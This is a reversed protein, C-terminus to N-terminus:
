AGEGLIRRAEDLHAAYHRWREVSSAYLPKRVQWLSATKVVSDNAHFSLCGEEWPLDCFALLSAITSRPERVLDEYGFDHISDPYLAKWHAMLRRYQVYWHAAHALSLGYSVTLQFHLFYISLINDLSNRLTHVIRADPFLRKILGIHLFNDPRKDTVVDGGPFQKRLADRYATRARELDGPTLRAAAEPYPQVLDHVIGPLAELEGGSTVRSHGALIQEALTSGSRFMGCIFIPRPREDSAPLAPAAQPFAAIIADILQEHAAPDYFRYGGPASAASARNAAEFATFAEEYAGASDLAQGLAFGLDAKDEWSAGGQEIAARLRRIMPGDRRHGPELGALRALARANGPDAELAREYAQRAEASNGRDEHFMGLNLLAPGFRPNLALAAQLERLAEGDRGLQEGLIFGRNLHAEEPRDVGRDIAIQYSALAEEYRRAHRQLYALNFWSEALEPARELLRRHAEIAADLPGTRLLAAARM